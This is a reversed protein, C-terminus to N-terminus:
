RRMRCQEDQMTGFRHRVILTRPFQARRVKVLTEAVSMPDAPIARFEIDDSLNAERSKATMAAEGPGFGTGAGPYEGSGAGDREQALRRAAREREEQERKAKEAADRQEKELRAMLITRDLKTFFNDGDQMFPLLLARRARENMWVRLADRCLLLLLLGRSPFVRARCPLFTELGSCLRFRLLSSFFM